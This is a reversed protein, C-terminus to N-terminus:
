PSSTSGRPEPVVVARRNMERFSPIVLPVLTAAFFALGTIWFAAALGFTVILAGGVLGGFPLLIWSVAGTMATVRGIMPKPIREIMVAGIVPNIFGSAFGGIALVALMAWLPTDIAFIMFRPLGCIIFAATYVLLRPLRHAFAAALGAGAIAAGTFIAFLLGLIEPGHGHDRVWVPALIAGYAQDLLNTVAVMIMLSLLVTDGRLFTWGARLDQWYTGPRAERSAPPPLDPIGFRIITAAILFAATNLLLVETAGVLAILAGSAALGATTATREIAANVGAVRELPVGALEAVAPTLAIKAADAPGRLMGLVFVIPLLLPFSLLGLWHLLPVLGIAVASAIDCTFAIRRQGLRDILPGSLGKAIVYPLMECLGVLGTLVPDGTTVLVLWPVAIGALRSGTISFIEAVALAIFPRRM